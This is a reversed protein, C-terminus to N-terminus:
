GAYADVAEVLREVGEQLIGDELAFTLRIHGTGSLGFASGPVVAVGRKLLHRVVEQDDTGAPLRPFLYFTAQALETRLVRSTSLIAYALDRKRLLRARLDRVYDRPAALAALAAEQIFVPVNTCINQLVIDYKRALEAPAVVWGIRFGTMAFTKSFTDIVVTRDRLAPHESLSRHRFPEYVIQSFIEDSIVRVWPHRELVAAVEDINEILQGNPRQPSNLVVARTRPGILAALHDCDLRRSDTFRVHRVVARLYRAWFEDPPYGPDPLIVEDGEDLMILLSAAIAFKAGPTVVVEEPETPRGRRSMEEALARRLPEIGPGPAYRVEQRELAAVAAAVAERPPQFEPAGYDGKEMHIIRAGRDRELRAAERMTSWQPPLDFHSLRTDIMARRM